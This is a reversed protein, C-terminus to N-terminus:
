AEAERRRGRRQELEGAVAELSVGAGVLGALVHFLVDAAEAAVRAPDAPARGLELCLEFAEEMIKRQAQEGDRLLTASYSGPPADQLRGRLVAEIDSLVEV